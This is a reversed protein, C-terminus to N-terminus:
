AAEANFLGKITKVMADLEETFQDSAAIIRGIMVDDREVRKIFIPLGKTYCVFDWWQRGTVYMSTQIQKVHEAPVEGTLLVEIHIDGRKCKIEAGGGKETLPNLEGVLADPSCGIRGRRIFGVQALELGTQIGYLERAKPETEQGHKTYANGEFVVCPDGSIIESALRRMYTARTKSPEGARGSAMVNHMESATIVGLRSDIWEQSGQECDFVQLEM